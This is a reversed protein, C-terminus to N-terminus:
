WDGQLEQVIATALAEANLQQGTERSEGLTPFMSVAQQFGKREVLIQGNRLDKWTFNVTVIYLQEQPLASLADRSVGGLTVSVIEGELISDARERAVVKYPTRNEVQQVIARTLAFEDGRSFDVNRFIPVAVTRIDQRYLSSWSYGGVKSSSRGDCGVLFTVLVLAIQLWPSTHRFARM